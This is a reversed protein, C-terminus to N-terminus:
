EARRGREVHYDEDGKHCVTTRTGTHTGIGYEPYARLNACCRPKACGMCACSTFLSRRGCIKQCSRFVTAHLLLIFLNCLNRSSDPVVLVSRAKRRAPRRPLAPRRSTQRARTASTALPARKQTVQRALVSGDLRWYDSPRQHEIIVYHVIWTQM